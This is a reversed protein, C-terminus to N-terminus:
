IWRERQYWRTTESFREELSAKIDFELEHKARDSSCVWSGATAERVKDISFIGRQRRIHAWADALGAAGWLVAEPTPVCRYRRRGLSDAILQGWEAYTPARDEALFYVGTSDPDSELGQPRLRAGREVVAILGHCLDAAHIMSMRRVNRGPAPAVGLWRIPRYLALMEKDGEGFVIPPRVISIPVRGAYGAAALEGARKSRGYASTPGVPDTEVRPRNAIAPGAAALSSVVVLVPPSTQVACAKALNATGQGNVRLLEQSSLHKTLGALHIVIDADRIGQRLGEADELSGSFHEVDLTALRGTPSKHRTLCSVRYGSDLLARALHAGIFGTAGTVFVKM